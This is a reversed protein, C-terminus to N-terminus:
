KKGDELRIVHNLLREAVDSMDKAREGMLAMTPAVDNIIADRVAKSDKSEEDARKNAAALQEKLDRVTSDPHAKGMAFWILAIGVFGIQVLDVTGDLSQPTQALISSGATLYINM